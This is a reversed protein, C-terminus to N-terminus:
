ILIHLQSLALYLLLITPIQSTGIALRPVDRVFLEADGCGNSGSRHRYDCEPRAAQNHWDLSTRKASHPKYLNTDPQKMPKQPDKAKCRVIEIEDRL